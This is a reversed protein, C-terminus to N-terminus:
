DGRHDSKNGTGCGRLARDGCVLGSFRIERSQMRRMLVVFRRM